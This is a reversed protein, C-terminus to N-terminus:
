LVAPVGIAAAPAVSQEELQVALASFNERVWIASQRGAAEALERSQWTSTSTVWTEAPTVDYEIFGEQQQFVPLLDAQARQRVEDTDGTVRYVSTQVHHM